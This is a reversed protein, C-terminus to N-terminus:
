KRRRKTNLIEKKDLKWQLIIDQYNIKEFDDNQESMFKYWEAFEMLFGEFLYKITQTENEFDEPNKNFIGKVIKVEFDEFKYFSENCKRCSYKYKNEITFRHNCNEELINELTNKNKEIFDQEKIGSFCHMVGTQQLQLAQYEILLTEILDAVGSDMFDNNSIGKEKLFQKAKM